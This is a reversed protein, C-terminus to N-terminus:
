SLYARQGFIQVLFDVLFSSLYYVFGGILNVRGGVRARFFKKLMNVRWLISNEAKQISVFYRTTRWVFAM